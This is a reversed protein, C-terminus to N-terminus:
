LIFLSETNERSCIRQWVLSLSSSGDVREKFEVFYRWDRWVMVSEEEERVANGCGEEVEETVPLKTCQQTSERFRRTKVVRGM